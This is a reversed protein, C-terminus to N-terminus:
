LREGESFISRLMKMSNLRLIVTSLVLCSNSYISGLLISFVSPPLTKRFDKRFDECIRIEKRFNRQQSNRQSFIKEKAFKNKKKAFSSKTYNWVHKENLKLLGLGIFIIYIDEECGSSCFGIDAWDWSEVSLISFEMEWSCPLWSLEQFLSQLM